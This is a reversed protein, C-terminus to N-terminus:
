RVRDHDRIDVDAADREDIVARGGALDNQRELQSAMEDREARTRRHTRMRRMGDVMLAIGIAGVLATVAGAVFAVSANSAWVQGFAELDIANENMVAFDIGVTVAAAFLLLGIILM